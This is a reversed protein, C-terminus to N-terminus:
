DKTELAEEYSKIDELCCSIAKTQYVTFQKYWEITRKITTSFEWVSKWGLTSFAKDSNLHLNTAEHEDDSRNTAKWEGNCYNYAYEVLERVTRNSQIPPGFNFAECLPNNRKHLHQALLLYGYLPDLVHQWPRKANPKRIELPTKKLISRSLDPIIRDKAWDGGGIVNGARATAIKLFQTQNTGNGCYSSRWSSIAIEAAAKSSSYPDYGGLPDVERYGFEWEKNEYVKDTTIMVVACKHKIKRLSELVNLSGIVNTSWTLLPEKYSLKVLPQAALHFVIEPQCLKIFNNLEPLNNIDGIKHTWYYKSAINPPRSSSLERFLNPDGLPSLSYGYVKAGLEQLWLSLWSGKFGTHGTILVRKDNWFHKDIM